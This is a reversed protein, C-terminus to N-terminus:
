AEKYHWGGWKRTGYIIPIRDESSVSNMLQNFNYSNSNDIKPKHTASWLSGALSAGYLGGILSSSAGFFAQGVHGAGLFFGAITLVTKGKSKSM